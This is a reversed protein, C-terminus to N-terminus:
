VGHCKTIKSADINSHCMACHASPSHKLNLACVRCVLHGCPLLYQDGERNSNCSSCLTEDLAPSSQRPSNAPKSNLFSPLSKLAGSLADDLSRNLKASHSVPQSSSSHKLVSSSQQVPTCMTKTHSIGSEKLELGNKIPETMGRELSSRCLKNNPIEEPVIDLHRKRTSPQSDTQSTLTSIKAGRPHPITMDHTTGLKHIKMHNGNQLIFHDIRAKLATNPVFKSSQTYPKGTFPDNPSRGWKAEEEIYREHTKIDISQGCPLLIPFAMLDNTLPDIFESPISDTDDVPSDKISVTEVAKTSTEKSGNPHSVTSHIQLLSDILTQPCSKAPQGWIEVWKVGGIGGLGTFVVRITAETVNQLYRWDPCSLRHVSHQPFYSRGPMQKLHHYRRVLKFSPNEFKFIHSDKQDARAVFKSVTLPGCKPLSQCNLKTNDNSNISTYIDIVQLSQRGVKGNLVISHLEVPCQFKFSLQYPPKIFSEPMFGQNSLIPNDSILNSAEYGDTSPKDCAVVTKMLPHCFNFAM